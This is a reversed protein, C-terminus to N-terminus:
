RKYANDHHEFALFTIVKKEEDVEFKLVFSKMIHVRREGKLKYRLPKYHDPNQIIENIKNKLIKKIINNKKCAKIIEKKCKSHIIQSYIM